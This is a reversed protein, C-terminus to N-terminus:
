HVYFIRCYYNKSSMNKSVIQDCGTIGYIKQYKEPNITKLEHEVRNYGCPIYVDYDDEKTKNIKYKEFIKKMIGRLPKENCRKYSSFHEGFRSDYLLFLIILILIISIINIM